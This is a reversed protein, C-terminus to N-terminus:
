APKPMALSHMVLVGGASLMLWGLWQPPRVTKRPVPGEGMFRRLPNNVSVPSQGSQDALFNTTRENLVVGDVLRFQLGLFLVLLGIFFYHYRNM